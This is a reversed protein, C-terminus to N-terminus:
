RYAEAIQKLQQLTREKEVFSLRAVITRLEAVLNNFEARDTVDTPGNYVEKRGSDAVVPELYNTINALAEAAHRGNPHLNLYEGFRMRLDFLHCNIYGECEGPLPNLAAEWAISDSIVHKAYKSHLDWFQNSAVIYAGAPENYVIANEHTKTFSSFPESNSEGQPISKLASRLTLLRKLEFEGSADSQDLKDTFEGMFEQINAWRKAEVVPKWTLGQAIADAELMTGPKLEAEDKALSVNVISGDEIHAIRKM